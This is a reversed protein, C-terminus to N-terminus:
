EEVIAFYEFISPADDWTHRNGDPRHLWVAIKQEKAGSLVEWVEGARHVGSIKRNHDRITLDKILKVKQGAVLGCLYRQVPYKTVLKWKDKM